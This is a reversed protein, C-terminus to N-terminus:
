KWAGIGACIGLPEKRTYVFNGNTMPIHDGSITPALSGYYNICEAAYQVDIRSEYIPKGNHLTELRAIPELNAKIVEAARHLITGRELGTLKSWAAFGAKASEVADNVDKVSSSSCEVLLQGLLIKHYEILRARGKLFLVNSVM